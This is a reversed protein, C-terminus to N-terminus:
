QPAQNNVWTQIENIICDPLKSGNKPMTKSPDNTTLRDMLTGNSVDRLADSYTALGYHGDSSASQHCSNNTTGCSVDFIPKVQTTWTINNSTDCRILSVAPHIEKLNDFYCGSIVFFLGIVAFVKKM